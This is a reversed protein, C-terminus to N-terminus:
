RAEDWKGYTYNGTILSHPIKDKTVNIGYEVDSSIYGTRRLEELLVTIYEIAREIPIYKLIDEVHYNDIMILYGKVHILAKADEYLSGGNIFHSVNVELYKGNKDALIDNITKFKSVLLPRIGKLKAHLALYRQIGARDPLKSTELFKVATMDQFAIIKNEIVDERTLERSKGIKVDETYDYVSIDRLRKVTSPLYKRNLYEKNKTVRTVVLEDIFKSDYELPNEEALDIGEEMCLWLLDKYAKYAPDNPEAGNIFDIAKAGPGDNKIRLPEGHLDRIIDGDRDVQYTLFSIDRFECREISNDKRRAKEYAIILSLLSTRFRKGKNFLKKVYLTMKEKREKIELFKPKGSDDLLESELASEGDKNVLLREKRFENTEAKISNHKYDSASKMVNGLYKTIIEPPVDEIKYPERGLSKRLEARIETNMSTISFDYQAAIKSIFSGYFGRSRANVFDAMGDLPSLSEETEPGTRLALDEIVKM